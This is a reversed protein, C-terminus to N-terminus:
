KTRHWDYEPNNRASKSRELRLIACNRCQTPLQAPFPNPPFANLTTEIPTESPPVRGHQTSRPQLGETSGGGQNGRETYRSIGPLTAQGDRKVFALANLKEIANAPKNVRNILAPLEKSFRPSIGHQINRNSPRQVGAKASPTSTELVAMGVLVELIELSNIGAQFLGFNAERAILSEPNTSMIGNIALDRLQGIKPAKEEFERWSKPHPEDNQAITRPKRM